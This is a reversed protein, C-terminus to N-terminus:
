SNGYNNSPSGINDKCMRGDYTIDEHAGRDEGFYNSGYNGWSRAWGSCDSESYSNDDISLSTDYKTCELWSHSYVSCIQEALLLIFISLGHIHTNM